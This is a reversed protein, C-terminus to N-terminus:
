TFSVCKIVFGRDAREFIRGYNDDRWLALVCLSQEADLQELVITKLADMNIALHMVVEVITDFHKIEIDQAGMQVRLRVRNCM